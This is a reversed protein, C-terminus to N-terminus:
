QLCSGALKACQTAHPARRPAQALRRALAVAPQLLSAGAAVLARHGQSHSQVGAPPRRCHHRAGVADTPRAQRETVRTRWRHRCQVGHRRRVPLRGMAVVVDHVAAVQTVQAATQTAAVAAVVCQLGRQQRKQLQLQAQPPM